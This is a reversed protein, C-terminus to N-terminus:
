EDDSMHKLKRRVLAKLSSDALSNRKESEEILNGIETHFM